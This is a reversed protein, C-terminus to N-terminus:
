QERAPRGQARNRTKVAKGIGTKKKDCKGQHPGSGWMQGTRQRNGSFFDTERTFNRRRNRLDEELKADRGLEGEVKGGRTGEGAIKGAGGGIEGDNEV